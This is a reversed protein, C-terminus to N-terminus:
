QWSCEDAAVAWGKKGVGGKGTMKGFSGGGLGIGGLVLCDMWFDKKHGMDPNSVLLDFARGGGRVRGKREKGPWTEEGLVM